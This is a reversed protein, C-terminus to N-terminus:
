PTVACPQLGRVPTATLVQLVAPGSRRLMEHPPAHEAFRALVEPPPAGLTVLLGPAACLAPPLPGRFIYRGAENIAWVPTGSLEFSLTGTLGYSDTAVWRAGTEAMAQRLDAVVPAWGKMENPPNKGPFIPRGPWLALGLLILGLALGVGASRWVHRAPRNGAGLAALAAIGPFLPVLWNAQVQAKLAHVGMYVVLPATLWLLLRAPGRSRTVGALADALILPSVLAVTAGLYALLWHWGPAEGQGIRGFQRTLGLGDHAINWRAYPVLVALALVAALWVVPRRLEARGARTAVLWGALGVWLFLNTFKSLVGLGAGLGALLWWGGHRSGAVAEALAWGTLAWFFTSPADPTATFGLVLILVTANLYLAARRATEPGSGAGDGAANGAARGALVAIRAAMPTALAFGLVSLLRVGLPSAGFVAEGARIWWAIMPPHDYYGASPVTAWLAYYAEDEVLPLAHALWLHFALAVLTVLAVSPLLAARTM